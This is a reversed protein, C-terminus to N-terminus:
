LTVSPTNCRSECDIARKVSDILQVLKGIQDESFVGEDSIDLKATNLIEETKWNM